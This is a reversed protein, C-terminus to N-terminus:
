GIIGWKGRGKEFDGRLGKWIHNVGLYAKAEWGHTKEYTLKVHYITRVFFSRYRMELQEIMRELPKPCANPNTPAYGPYALLADRKIPLCLDRGILFDLFEIWKPERDPSRRKLFKCEIGIKPSVEDSVDLHLPFQEFWGSMTKLMPKVVGMDGPWGVSELYDTLTDTSPFVVCMRLRDSGPRAAMIGVQFLAKPWPLVEICKRWQRSMSPTPAKGMTCAYVSELLTLMDERSHSAASPNDRDIKDFPGFFLSPLQAESPIHTDFELWIDDMCRYLPSPPAAWMRGFERVRKWVPHKFFELAFDHAPLKGSLIDPGSNDSSLSALFDADAEIKGLRCEFGFTSFALAGPLRTCLRHVTAFAEQSLLASPIDAKVLNLYQDLAATEGM